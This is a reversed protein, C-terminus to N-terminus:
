ECGLRDWVVGGWGVGRGMGGVGVVRPAPPAGSGEGPRPSLGWRGCLIYVLLFIIIKDVRLPTTTGQETPQM